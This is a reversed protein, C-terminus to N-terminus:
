KGQGAAMGTETFHHINPKVKVMGCAIRNPLEDNITPHTADPESMSKLGYLEHDIRASIQKKMLYNRPTSLLSPSM